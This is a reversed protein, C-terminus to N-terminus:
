NRNTERCFTSRGFWVLGVCLPPHSECRLILLGRGPSRGPLAAAPPNDGTAVTSGVSACSLLPSCTSTASFLMSSGTITVSFLLSSGMTTSGMTACFLMSRGM